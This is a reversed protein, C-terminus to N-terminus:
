IAHELQPAWFGAPAKKQPPHQCVTSVDLSGAVGTAGTAGVRM